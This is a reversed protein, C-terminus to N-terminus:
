YPNKKSNPFYISFWTHKEEQSLNSQAFYAKLEEQSLNGYGKGPKDASYKINYYQYVSEYDGSDALKQAGKPLKIFNSM